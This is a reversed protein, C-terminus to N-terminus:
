EKSREWPPLPNGNKWDHEFRDRMRAIADVPVGHENRDALEENTLGGDFVSVVVLRNETEEALRIYPEMEWRQTFTNHVVVHNFWSGNKVLATVKRLCQAHAQPLKTPDFIYEGDENVFFDDACCLNTDRPMLRRDAMEWALSTKGSGPLGRVLIIKTKTAM